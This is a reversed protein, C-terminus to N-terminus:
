FPLGPKGKGNNIFNLLSKQMYYTWGKSCDDYCESEENLGHHVLRLETKDGKEAIEFSIKTDLWEKKNELFNLQSGTVLWVIRKNPVVEVLKQKTIHM